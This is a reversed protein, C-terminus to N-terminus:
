HWGLLLVFCFFLSSYVKKWWDLFCFSIPLIRLANQLNLNNIDEFISEEDHNSNSDFKNKKEEKTFAQL